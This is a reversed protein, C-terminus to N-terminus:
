LASGLTTCDQYPGYPSNKTQVDYVPMEVYLSTHVNYLTMQVAYLSTQVDYISTQVNYIYHCMTYTIVYM